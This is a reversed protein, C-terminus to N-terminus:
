EKEAFTTKKTSSPFGDDRFCVTALIFLFLVPTDCSLREWPFVRLHADEKM